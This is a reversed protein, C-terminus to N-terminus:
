LVATISSRLYNNISFFVLLFKIVFFYSNLLFFYSNTQKQQTDHTYRAHVTRTDHTYRPLWGVSATCRVNRLEFM